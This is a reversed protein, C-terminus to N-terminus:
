GRRLRRTETWWTAADEHECQTDRQAKHTDIAKTAIAPYDCIDILLPPDDTFGTHYYALYVISDTM